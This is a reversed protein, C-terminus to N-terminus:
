LKIHAKINLFQTRPKGEFVFKVAINREANYETNGAAILQKGINGPIYTIKVQKNKEDWEPRVCDCSPPVIEVNTIEGESKFIIENVSKPKITGLDITNNNFM